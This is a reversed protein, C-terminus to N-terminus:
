DLRNIVLGSLLKPYFYTSKHPLREGSLAVRKIDEVRIPNLFFGFSDPNLRVTFIVENPDRTFQVDADKPILLSHLITVDLDRIASSKLRTVSINENLKGEKFRLLSFKKGNYVGILTPPNDNVVEQMKNVMEDYTEVEEILFNATMLHRIKESDLKSVIRHTPLITLGKDTWSVFYSMVYNFSEDGTFRGINSRMLERYLRASEYRHHGDAIFFPTDRLYERIERIFANDTISWVKHTVEDKSIIIRPNNHSAFDALLNEVRKQPDDFVSFIPSLNAKVEKLLMLRDIKTKEFINEHPLIEGDEDAIRMLGIFGLRTKIKGEHPYEHAYIYFGPVEDRILVGCDLWEKFHRATRTYKNEVENNGSLADELLLNVINYDSLNQYYIKDEPSIVDYPPTVVKSINVLNQNYVVGRFHKIEPM